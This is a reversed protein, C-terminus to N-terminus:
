MRNMRIVYGFIREEQREDGFHMPPGVSVGYSNPDKQDVGRIICIRLHQTGDDGGIRAHWGAFIDEAAECNEFALGLFPTMEDPPEVYMFASGNWHARDWQEVDIPSRVRYATHRMKKMDLAGAPPVGEGFVPATREPETIALRWPESRENDYIRPKGEALAGPVPLTTGFVNDTMVPVNCFILARDFAREDDALRKLWQEPDAFGMLRGVIAAMVQRCFDRFAAAGEKTSSESVPSYTVVGETPGGASEFHIAPAATHAAYGCVRVTLRDTNPLSREGLRTALFSEIVGLLAEGIQISKADPDAMITLEVGLIRTTMVCLDSLELKPPSEIGQEPGADWFQLILDDVEQDTVGAPISGEERLQPLRGLLFLAPMGAEYLEFQDLIDPLSSLDQRREFPTRVLLACVLMANGHRREDLAPGAMGQAGLVILELQHCLMAHGVRGLSLEMRFLGHLMAPSLKSLSGEVTPGATVQHSVGVACVYARGM